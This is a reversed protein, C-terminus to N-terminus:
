LKCWRRTEVLVRDHGPRDAAFAGKARQRMVSASVDNERKTRALSGDAVDEGIVRDRASREGIVQADKLVGANDHKAPLAAKSPQQSTTIAVCPDLM